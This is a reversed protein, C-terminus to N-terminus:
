SQVLGKYLDCKFYSILIHDTYPLGVLSFILLLSCRDTVKVSLTFVHPHQTDPIQQTVLIDQLLQQSGAQRIVEVKVSGSSLDADRVEV